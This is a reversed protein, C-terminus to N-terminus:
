RGLNVITQLMEDITSILRASAQYARQFKVLDTMEEDLSVGSIADRQRELMNQVVEQDSLANNVSWLSQGFAAVTQSYGESFTQNNMGSQDATALQALALAVQNDGVVGSVGSAQILAPNDSLAQNAQIDAAGTGLFFDAGTTGNLGFGARHLDNVQTILQRALTDLSTRLAALAGDRAEITGTIRGGTLNLPLGSTTTRVLMQGGGADYAELPELVKPGTIVDVGAVAIDISGTPQETTQLNVIGALEEIRQQRLDRLDNAAGPAGAETAMIQKNYGAIISILENAKAVDDRLTVNLSETLTGLRADVQNFRNALNAAQLMVSQRETFSTPSTALSQFSNFLDALGEAIGNQSSETEASGDTATAARNLSQGLISEGLQLAHQQSELYGQVSTEGQIQQDLITSRLQRIGLVDAGTGQPGWPTPVTISTAISLRQRTYASNNVNALNHGAVEVGQQQVQLSRAGMNLTGFLGLM